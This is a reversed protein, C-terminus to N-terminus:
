YPHTAFAPGARGDAGPNGLGKGGAGGLGGQGATAQVSYQTVVASGITAIAVSVGGQGGAGGGGSGGDGGPAGHGGGASEYNILGCKQKGGDSHDQDAQKVGALGPGGDAGAGGRGGNGSTVIANSLTVISNDAVIGFSGGGAGGPGGGGGACGGAGGAGGHGGLLTGCGFCARFRKTGGGGGGGGGTGHSGRAGWGSPAATWLGQKFAGTIVAATAGGAGNTGNGGPAGDGGGSVSDGNVSPCASPCDNSGGGGGGGAVPPDGSATGPSGDGSTCDTPEGGVGGSATCSVIPATPGPAGNAGAGGKITANGIYLASASDIVWVAYSSRGDNSALDAGVITVGDITTLKTLAQSVVTRDATSTITVVNSAARSAFDPAYAGFISVGDRLQLAGTYTGGSVLVTCPTGPCKTALDLGTQISKVPHLPSAGNATDDGTVSVYIAQAGTPTPGAEAADARNVTGSASGDGTAIGGDSSDNGSPSGQDTTAEGSACGSGGIILWACVLFAKAGRM